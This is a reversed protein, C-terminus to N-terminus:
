ARVERPVFGQANDRANKLREKDIFAQTDPPAPADNAKLTPRNQDSFTRVKTPM